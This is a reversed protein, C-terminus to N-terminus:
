EITLNNIFLIIIFQMIQPYSALQPERYGVSSVCQIDTLNIKKKGPDISPISPHPGFPGPIVFECTTNQTSSTSGSAYEAHLSYM